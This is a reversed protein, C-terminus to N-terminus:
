KQKEQVVEDRKMEVKQIKGQEVLYATWKPSVETYTDGVKYNRLGNLLDSFDKAVKYM